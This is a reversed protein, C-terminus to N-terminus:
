GAVADAAERPAAVARGGTVAALVLGLCWLLAVALVSYTAAVANGVGRERLVFGLAFEGAFLVGLVAGLGRLRADRAAVVATAVVLVGAVVGTGLRADQLWPHLDAGVRRWVPWGMCRTYSGRGAAFIASVHMAVVALVTVPALVRLRPPVGDGAPEDPTVLAHVRVAAVTLVTLTTLACTLDIAGAWTPISAVVVLRGFAGSAIACALAVWPLVRVWVDRAPLRLALVAAALVLPGTTMAVVRHTFEVVPALAWQPGVADPRCGPWTPCSAGSNTACVVSGMAVALFALLAALRFVTVTATPASSRSPM